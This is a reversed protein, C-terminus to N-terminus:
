FGESIKKHSRGHTKVNDPFSMTSHFSYRGFESLDASLGGFQLPTLCYFHQLQPSTGLFKIRTKSHNFLLNSDIVATIWSLVDDFASALVKLGSFWSSNFSFNSVIKPMCIINQLMMLSDITYM